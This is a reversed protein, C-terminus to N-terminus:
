VKKMTDDLEPIMPVAVILNLDTNCKRLSHPHDGDQPQANNLPTCDPLALNLSGPLIM